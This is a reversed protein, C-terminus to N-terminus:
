DPFEGALDQESHTARMGKPSIKFVDAAKWHLYRNQELFQVQPALVDYSESLRETLHQRTHLFPVEKNADYAKRYESLIRRRLANEASM